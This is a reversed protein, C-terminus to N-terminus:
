YRLKEVVRQLDENCVHTYIETTAVSEHGLIEQIERINAGRKLMQTAATHRLKQCSYDAKGITALYHKTMKQVSIVTLRTNQVSLFLADCDADKPRELLYDLVADLTKESLYVQREKNGKGLVTVSDSHLSQLNLGVVESVRLGSSLMLFIIAKDRYKQNGRITKLLADIDKEELYKPLLKRIKSMKFKKLVNNELYEMDELFAFFSKLVAIKRNRTPEKALKEMALWNLFDSIDKRVISELFPIDIGTIDTEVMNQLPIQARHCLLFRFFLRLDIFYNYVTGKSFGRETLLQSLYEYVVPPSQEKYLANKNM